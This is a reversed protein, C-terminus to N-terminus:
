SSSNSINDTELKKKKHRNILYYILEVIGLAFFFGLFGSISNLMVDQFTGVRMPVFLQGIETIASLTLIILLGSFITSIQSTKRNRENFFTFALVFGFGFYAILHGIYKQVFSSLDIGFISTTDQYADPTTFTLNLENKNGSTLVQTTGRGIMKFTVTSESVNYEFKLISNDTVDLTLLRYITDGIPTDDLYFKLTISSGNEVTLTANDQLKKDGNYVNVTMNEFALRNTDKPVKNYFYTKVQYSNSKINGDFSSSLSTINSTKELDNHMVVFKVRSRSYHDEDFPKNFCPYSFAENSDSEAYYFTSYKAKVNEESIILNEYPNSYKVIYSGNDEHGLTIKSDLTLNTKAIENSINIKYTRGKEDTLTHIGPACDTDIELLQSDKHVKIHSTDPTLEISNRSLSYLSIEELNVNLDCFKLKFINTVYDRYHKNRIYGQSQLFDLNANMFVYRFPFLEGRKIPKDEILIDYPISPINKVFKVNTEFITSNQSNKVSIKANDYQQYSFLYLSVTDEEFTYSSLIKDVSPTEIKLTKNIETTNKKNTYHADLDLRIFEGSGVVIESKEDFPLYKSALTESKGKLTLKDPVNYDIGKIVNVINKMLGSFFTNQAKAWEFPM